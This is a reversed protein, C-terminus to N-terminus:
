RVSVSQDLAKAVSSATMARSRHGKGPRARAVQPQTAVDAPIGSRAKLYLEHVNQLHVQLARAAEDAHGSKMLAVVAGHEEASRNVSGPISGSMARIRGLPGQVSAHAQIIWRNRCLEVLRVHFDAIERIAEGHLGAKEDDAAAHALGALGELEAPSARRMALRLAAVELASRLETLDEADSESIAAVYTGKFPITVVLGEQELRILAHRIPTKSISLQAALDAESILTGPPLAVSSIADRIATYASSSLRVSQLEQLVRGAM